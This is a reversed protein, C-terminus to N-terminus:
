YLKTSFRKMNVDNIDRTRNPKSFEEVNSDVIGANNLMLFVPLHDSVDAVLIGSIIDVCFRNCFINDISTVSTNTYRTPWTILPLFSNAYM